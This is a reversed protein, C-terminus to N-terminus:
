MRGRLGSLVAAVHLQQHPVQVDVGAEEMSNDDPMNEAPDRAGATGSGAYWSEEQWAQRDAM